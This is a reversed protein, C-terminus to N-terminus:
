KAPAPGNAMLYAVLDTRDKADKMGFFTMKTGPVVKRPDAIWADLHEADWSFTQAKLADSFNYGPIAAAKTGAVGFLNPGTMSAGGQNMTHCSACLAFKAKGNEIDATNYPAPLSAQNAKLQEMTLEPAPPAPPAEATANGQESPKGCASLAVALSFVLSTVVPSRM